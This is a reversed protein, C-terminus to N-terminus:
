AGSSARICGGRSTRGLDGGLAAAGSERQGRGAGKDVGGRVEVVAARELGVKGRAAGRATLERVLAVEALPPCRAPCVCWGFIVVDISGNREEGGGRATSAAAPPAARACGRSRVGGRRARRAGAVAAATAAAAVAGGGGGRAARMSGWM